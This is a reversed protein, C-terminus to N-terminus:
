GDIYLTYRIAYPTSYPTFLTSRLAFSCLAYLTSRLTFLLPCLAPLMRWVGHGIDIPSVIMFGLFGVVHCYVIFMVFGHPRPGSSATSSNIPMPGCGVRYLTSTIVAKDLCLIFCGQEISTFVIAVFQKYSGGKGWLHQRPVPILTCYSIEGSIPSEINYPARQEAAKCLPPNSKFKRGILMGILLNIYYCLSFFSSKGTFLSFDPITRREIESEKIALKIDPDHHCPLILYYRIKNLM